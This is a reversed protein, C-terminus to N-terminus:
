GFDPRKQISRYTSESGLIGHMIVLPPFNGDPNSQAPPTRFTHLKVPSRRGVFSAAVTAFKRTMVHLRKRHEKREEQSEKIKTKPNRM